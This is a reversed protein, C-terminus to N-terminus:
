VIGLNLTYAKIYKLKTNTKDWSNNKQPEKTTQSRGSNTALLKAWQLEVTEQLLCMIETDSSASNLVWQMILLWFVLLKQLLERLRSGWLTICLPVASGQACLPTCCLLPFWFKLFMLRKYHEILLGTKLGLSFM